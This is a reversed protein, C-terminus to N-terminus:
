RHAVQRYSDWGWRTSRAYQRRSTPTRRSCPGSTIPFREIAEELSEVGTMRPMRQGVPFLAMPDGMLKLKGLTDLASEGSDARLVRYERPYRRRLAREVARMVQPNDDVALIVPKAM